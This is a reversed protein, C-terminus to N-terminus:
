WKLYWVHYQAEMTPPENHAFAIKYKAAVAPRVNVNILVAICFIFTLVFSWRKM